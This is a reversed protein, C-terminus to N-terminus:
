DVTKKGKKRKFYIWAIAFALAGFLGIQVISELGDFGEITQKYNKFGLYGFYLYVLNRVFIGLFTSTLYTRINLKIIGCAVSIPASPMIPIARALFIFVNDKWGGDLKSGISEIEKHTVGIFKGLKGILLDELKDSVAYLIWAGLTKGLAGILALFILYILSQNQVHSITGALIMVLPSPIPAVIEEIFSGFVVFVELPVVQAWKELFVLLFDFIAM